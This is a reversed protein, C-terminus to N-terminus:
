FQFVGIYLGHFQTRLSNGYLHLKMNKTFYEHKFKTQVYLGM